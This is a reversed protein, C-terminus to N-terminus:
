DKNSKPNVNKSRWDTYYDQKYVKFREVEVMQRVLVDFRFHRRVDSRHVVASALVTKGVGPAGTIVM